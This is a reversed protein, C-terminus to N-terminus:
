VQLINIMSMSLTCYSLVPLDLRTATPGIITGHPLVSLAFRSLESTIDFSMNVSGLRLTIYTHTLQVACSFAKLRAARGMRRFQHVYLGSYTNFYVFVHFSVNVQPSKDTAIKGRCRNWGEFNDSPACYIYNYFNNEYHTAYNM